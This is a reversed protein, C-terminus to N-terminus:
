FELWLCVLNPIPLECGLNTAWKQVRSKPSLFLPHRSSQTPGEFPPKVVVIQTVELWTQVLIPHKSSWSYIHCEGTIWAEKSPLTLPNPTLTRIESPVFIGICYVRIERYMIYLFHGNDTSIGSDISALVLLLHFFDWLHRTRSAMPHATHFLM